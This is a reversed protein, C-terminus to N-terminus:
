KKCRKSERSVKESEVSGAAVMQCRAAWFMDGYESRARGRNGRPETSFCKRAECLLHEFSQLSLPHLKLVELQEVVKAVDFKKIVATWIPANCGLVDGLDVSGSIGTLTRLAAAAGDGVVLANPSSGLRGGTGIWMLRAVCHARFRPTGLGGQAQPTMLVVDVDEGALIRGWMEPLLADFRATIWAVRHVMDGERCMSLMGTQLSSSVTSRRGPLKSELAKRIISELVEVPAGRSCPDDLCSLIEPFNLVCQALFAKRFLESGGKRFSDSGLASLTTSDTMWSFTCRQKGVFRDAVHPPLMFLLRELNEEAAFGIRVLLETAMALFFVAFTEV